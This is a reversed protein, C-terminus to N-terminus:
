YISKILIVKIMNKLEKQLKQKKLFFIFRNM